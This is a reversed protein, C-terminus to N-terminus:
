KVSVNSTSKTAGIGPANHSVRSRTLVFEGLYHGIMEPQIQVPSFVKGNYVELTKGIMYPMIVVDRCHTRIRDNKKKLARHVKAADENEALLSRRQRAPVLRAFDQVSMKNLEDLSKGRYSFEKIAM